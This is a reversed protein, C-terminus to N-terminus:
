GGYDLGWPNAKIAQELKVSAAFRRPTSDPGKM